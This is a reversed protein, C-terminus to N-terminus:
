EEWGKEELWKEPSRGELEWEAPRTVRPGSQRRRLEWPDPLGELELALTRDLLLEADDLCLPIGRYFEDLEALLVAPAFCGPAECATVGWEVEDMKWLRFVDTASM